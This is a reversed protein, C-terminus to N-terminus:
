ITEQHNIECINTSFSTQLFFLTQSGKLEMRNMSLYWTLLAELFINSTSMYDFSCLLM